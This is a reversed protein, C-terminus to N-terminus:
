LQIIKQAKRKQDLAITGDMYQIYPIYNIILNKRQIRFDTIKISPYGVNKMSCEDFLTQLTGSQYLVIKRSCTTGITKMQAVLRNDITPKVSSVNNMIGYYFKKTRIDYISVRNGDASPGYFLIYRNKLLKTQLVLCARLYDKGIINKARTSPALNQLSNYCDPDEDPSHTYLETPFEANVFRKIMVRNYFLETHTETQAIEVWKLLPKKYLRFDDFGEAFIHSPSFPVILIILLFRVIM